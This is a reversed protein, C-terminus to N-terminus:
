IGQRLGLARKRLSLNGAAFGLRAKQPWFEKGCVQPVNEFASIEQRLGFYQKVNEFDCL